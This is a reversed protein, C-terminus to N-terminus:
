SFPNTNIVNRTPIWPHGGFNHINNHLPLCDGNPQPGVGMQRNCGLIVSINQGAAIGQTTGGLVLTKLDIVNIITRRRLGTPTSWEIMGGVYKLPNIAGSWNDQMTVRTGTFNIVQSTITAALRSAKCRDGYLVHPCTLQYNRRLGVRSMSTSIPEGTLTATSATREVQLVRGSWAVLFESATDSMHGQRILLTVVQDPPYVSFIESIGSNGPVSIKLQAKDLTGSSIIKGRDIPIPFYTIGEHVVNQEADTYAFFASPDSGYRFLYLDVPAGQNRSEEITAFTM